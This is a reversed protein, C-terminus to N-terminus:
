ATKTLKELRERYIAIREMTEPEDACVDAFYDLTERIEDPGITGAIRAAQDEDSEGYDKEDDAGYPDLDIFFMTVDYALGYLDGATLDDIVERAEEITSCFLDDGNYQVTYEGQGYLNYDIGYGKYTEVTM